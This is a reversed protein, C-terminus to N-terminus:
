KMCVLLIENDKVMRKLEKRFEKKRREGERQVDNRIFSKIQIDSESITVCEKCMRVCRELLLKVEGERLDVNGEM